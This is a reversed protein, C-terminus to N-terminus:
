KRFIEPVGYDAIEQVVLDVMPPYVIFDNVMTGYEAMRNAIFSMAYDKNDFRKFTPKHEEWFCVTWKDNKFMMKIVM